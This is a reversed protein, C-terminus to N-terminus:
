QYKIPWRGSPPTEFSRLFKEYKSYIDFSHISLIKPRLIYHINVHMYFRRFWVSLKEIAYSAKKYMTCNWTSHCRYAYTIIMFLWKLLVVSYPSKITTEFLLIVYFHRSEFEYDAMVNHSILISPIKRVRSNITDM